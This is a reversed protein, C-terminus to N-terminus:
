PIKPSGFGACIPNQSPQPCCALIWFFWNTKSSGFGLGFAAAYKPFHQVRAMATGKKKCKSIPNFDHIVMPKKRMTSQAHKDWMCGNWFRSDWARLLIDPSASFTPTELRQLQAVKPSPSRWIAACDSTPSSSAARRAWSCSLFPYLKYVWHSSKNNKIKLAHLEKDEIPEWRRHDEQKLKQPCFIWSMSSWIFYKGTAGPTVAGIM